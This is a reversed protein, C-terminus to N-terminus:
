KRGKFTLRKVANVVKNANTRGFVLKVDPQSSGEEKFRNAMIYIMVKDDADTMEAAEDLAKQLYELKTSGSYLADGNGDKRRWFGIPSWKYNGNNKEM